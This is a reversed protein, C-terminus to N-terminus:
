EKSPPVFPNSKGDGSSITERSIGGWKILNIFEESKLISLDIKETTEAYTNNEVAASELNTASNKNILFIVAGAIILCVLIILLYKQRKQSDLAM